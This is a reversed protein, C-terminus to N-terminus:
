DRGTQLRLVAAMSVASGRTITHHSGCQIVEVNDQLVIVLESIVIATETLQAIM